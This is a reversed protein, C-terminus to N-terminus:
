WVGRTYDWAVLKNKRTYGVQAGDYDWAWDPLEETPDPTRLKEMVLCPLDNYYFLRCKAKREANQQYNEAENVNAKKGADNIPLKVVYKDSPTALGARHRGSGLLKYGNKIFKKLIPLYDKNLYLRLNCANHWSSVTNAM